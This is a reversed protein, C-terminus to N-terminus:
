SLRRWCSWLIALTNSSTNEATGRPLFDIRVGSFSESFPPELGSSFGLEELAIGTIGSTTGLNVVEGPQPRSVGPFGHKPPRFDDLRSCPKSGSM